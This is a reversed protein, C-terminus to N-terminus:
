GLDEQDIGKKRWLRGCRRWYVYMPAGRSKRLGKRCVPCRLRKKFCM